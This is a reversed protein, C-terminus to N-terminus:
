DRRLRLGLRVDIRSKPVAKSCYDLRVACRLRRAGSHDGGTAAQTADHQWVAHMPRAQAQESCGELATGCDTAARAYAAMVRWLLPVLSALPSPVTVSCILPASLRSGDCACQSATRLSLTHRLLVRGRSAACLGPEADRAARAHRAVTDRCRSTSPVGCCRRAGTQMPPLSAPPM